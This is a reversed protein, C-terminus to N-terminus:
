LNFFDLRQPLPFDFQLPCTRDDNNVAGCDILALLLEQGHPKGRRSKEKDEEQVGLGGHSIIVFRKAGQRPGEATAVLKDGIDVAEM